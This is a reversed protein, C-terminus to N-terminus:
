QARGERHRRQARDELVESLADDFVDGKSWIADLEGIDTISAVGQDAALQELSASQWFSSEASASPASIDRKTRVIRISRPLDLKARLMKARERDVLVQVRDRMSRDYCVSPSLGRSPETFTMTDIGHELLKGLAACSELVGEDFGKPLSIQSPEAAAIQALGATLHDLSQEGLHALGAIEAPPEAIDFGVIASGGAWSVLYLRCAAEVERM